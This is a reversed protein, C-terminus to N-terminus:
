GVPAQKIQSKRVQALEMARVKLAESEYATNLDVASLMAVTVPAGGPPVLVDATAPEGSLASMEGILDGRGVSPTFGGPLIVTATGSLIVCLRRHRQGKVIIKDAGPHFTKLFFAQPALDAVNLVAALMPPLTSGRSKELAIMELETAIDTAEERSVVINRAVVGVTALAQIQRSSFGAARLTGWAAVREDGDSLLGGRRQFFPELIALQEPTLAPNVYVEALADQLSLNLDEMKQLAAFLERQEQRDSATRVLSTKPTFIRNLTAPPLEPIARDAYPSDAHLLPYDALRFNLARTQEKEADVFLAADIREKPANELGQLLPALRRLPLALLNHGYGPHKGARLEEALVYLATSMDWHRAMVQEFRRNEENFRRRAYNELREAAGSSADGVLRPYFLPTGTQAVERARSEGKSFQGSLFAHFGSRYNTPGCGAGPKFGDRGLDEVRNLLGLPFANIGETSGAIDGDRTLWTLPTQSLAVFREFDHLLPHEGKLLKLIILNYKTGFGLSGIDAFRDRFVTGAIGAAVLEEGTATVEHRGDVDIEPPLPVTFTEEHLDALAALEGLPEGNARRRAAERRLRLFVIVGQIEDGDPRDPALPAESNGADHFLGSLVLLRLQREDILGAIDALHLTERIMSVVHVSTHYQFLNLHYGIVHYVLRKLDLLTDGHFHEDLSTDLLALALQMSEMSLLRRRTLDILTSLEEPALVGNLVNIKRGASKILDLFGQRQAEEAASLPPPRNTLIAADPHNPNTM